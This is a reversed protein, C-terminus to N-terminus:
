WLQLRTGVVDRFFVAISASVYKQSNQLYFVDYIDFHM